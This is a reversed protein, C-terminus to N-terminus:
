IESQQTGWFIFSSWEGLCPRGSPRARTEPAWAPGSRGEPRPGSSLSPPPVSSYPIYPCRRPPLTDRLRVLGAAGGVGTGFRFRSGASVQYHGEQPAARQAAAGRDLGAASRGGGDEGAAEAKSLRGAQSRCRGAGPAHRSRWESSSPAPDGRYGVPNPGTKLSTLARSQPGRQQTRLLVRKPPGSSQSRLFARSIVQEYNPGKHPSSRRHYRNNVM